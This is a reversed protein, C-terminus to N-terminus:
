GSIRSRWYDPRRKMHAIAIVLIVDSVLVFVVSYPFRETFVRRVRLSADVGPVTLGAHPLTEIREIARDVANVFARGLGPKRAEYWEAAAVLDEAAEPEVRVSVM